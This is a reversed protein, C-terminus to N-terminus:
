PKSLEENLEQEFEEWTKWGAEDGARYKALRAAIIEKHWAPVPVEEPRSTVYDWLAGAYEIQEEITLEDFGPPPFPPEHSM